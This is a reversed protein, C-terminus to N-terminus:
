LVFPKCSNKTKFLFFVEENVETKEKEENKREQSAKEIAALGEKFSPFKNSKSFQEKFRAYPKVNQEEIWASFIFIM